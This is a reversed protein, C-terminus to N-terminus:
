YYFPSDQAELNDLSLYAIFKEVLMSMSWNLNEFPDEDDCGWGIDHDWKACQDEPSVVIFNGTGTNYLTLSYAWDGLMGWDYYDCDSAVVRCETAPSFWPCSPLSGDALGGFNKVFDEIGPIRHFPFKSRLDNPIESPPALHLPSPWDDFSLWQFGEQDISLCSLKRGLIATAMKQLYPVQFSAWRDKLLDIVEHDQLGAIVPLWGGSITEPVDKMQVPLRLKTIEFM